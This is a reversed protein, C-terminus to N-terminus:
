GCIPHLNLSLADLRLPLLSYSPTLHSFMKAIGRAINPRPAESSPGRNVEESRGGRGGGMNASREHAMVLPAILLSPPPSPSPSVRYVLSM